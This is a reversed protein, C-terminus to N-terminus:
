NDLTGPVVVGSPFAFDDMFASLCPSRDLFTSRSCLVRIGKLIAEILPQRDAIGLTIDVLIEDVSVNAQGEIDIAGAIGTELPAVAQDFVGVFNLQGFNM